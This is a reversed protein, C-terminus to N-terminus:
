DVKPEEAMGAADVDRELRKTLELPAADVYVEVDDTSEPTVRVVGGIRCREADCVPHGKMPVHRIVLRQPDDGLGVHTDHGVVGGLV